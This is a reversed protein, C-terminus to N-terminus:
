VIRAHTTAYYNADIFRETHEVDVWHDAIELAVKVADARGQKSAMICIM